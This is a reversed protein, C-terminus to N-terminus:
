GQCKGKRNQQLGNEDSRVWRKMMQNWMYDDDDNNSPHYHLREDNEIITDNNFCSNSLSFKTKEPWIVGVVPVNLGFWSFFISVHFFVLKVYCCCCCCINSSWNFLFFRVLGSPLTTGLKMIFFLLTPPVVPHKYGRCGDDDDSKNIQLCCIFLVLPIQTQKHTHLPPQDWNKKKDEYTFVCCVCYVCMIYIGHYGQCSIIQDDNTNTDHCM